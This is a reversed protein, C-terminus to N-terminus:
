EGGMPSEVPGHDEMVPTTLRRHLAPDAHIAATAKWERITTAVPGWQGLEASARAATVFDQVFQIMDESPFVALWPFEDLMADAIADAPAHALFARLARVTTLAGEGAASVRDERTLLLDAGDRRKVRVDGTDALAAVSKPDRQLDSWQVEHVQATVSEM